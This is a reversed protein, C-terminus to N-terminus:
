EAGQLEQLTFAHLFMSSVGRYDFFKDGVEVDRIFTSRMLNKLLCWQSALDRMNYWHNHAHLFFLGGPRLIRRAHQLARQRNDRGRIMGLTCFLSVAVDVTDEKNLM